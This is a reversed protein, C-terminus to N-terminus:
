LFFETRIYPYNILVVQKIKIGSMGLQLNLFLKKITGSGCRLPVLDM